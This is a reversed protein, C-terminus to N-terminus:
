TVKTTSQTLETTNSPSAFLAETEGDVSISHDLPTQDVVESVTKESMCTTLTWQTSAEKSSAVKGSKGALKFESSVMVIEQFRGDVMSIPVMELVEISLQILVETCRIGM